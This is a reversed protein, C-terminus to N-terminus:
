LRTIHRFVRFVKLYDSKFKNPQEHLMLELQNITLYEYDAILEANAHIKNLNRSIFYKSFCFIGYDNPYRTYLFENIDSINLKLSLEEDAERLAAEEYTEGSLVHGAVSFDYYGPYLICEDSRKTVLIRDQSDILFIGVVRFNHLGNRYIKERDEFGIVNDSEDVIDLMEKM